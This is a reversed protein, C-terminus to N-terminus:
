FSYTLGLGLALGTAIDGIQVQSSADLRLRDRLPALVLLRISESRTTEPGYEFDYHRWMIEVRGTGFRRGVSLTTFRSTSGVRTWQSASASLGLRWLPTETLRASAAWTTSRASAEATNVTWSIQASAVGRGWWLDVSERRRRTGLVDSSRWYAYPRREYHRAQLRVGAVVPIVARLSVRSASWGGDEPDRDVVLDAGARFDGLRLDQEIGVYTHDLWENGPRVHVASLTTGLRWEGPRLDFEAYAAAKPVDTQVVGNWADPELGFAVGATVRRGRFGGRVGDWYSHAGDQRLPFRGAEVDLGSGYGSRSLSFSYLRAQTDEGVISNSSFRRHLRADLVANWGGPLETAALRLSMSPSGLTRASPDFLGADTATRRANASIRIRGSIRVPRSARSRETRSGQGLISPREEGAAPPADEPADAALRSVRLVLTDGVAVDFPAGVFTTLSRARATGAVRLWGAAVDGIFVELTDGQHLDQDRGVDLYVYEATLYTVRAPVTAPAGPRDQATAPGAGWFLAAMGTWAIITLFRPMVLM